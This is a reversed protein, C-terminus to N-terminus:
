LLSSAINIALGIMTINFFFALVCHVLTLKRLSACSVSVDATQGSTGIIFSFYLFDWYSPMEEGPFILGHGNSDTADYFKHAYHLAFMSHIFFWAMPITAGVLIAHYLRNHGTMTKLASLELAIAVFCMVAAVSSLVLTSIAGDDQLRARLRIHDSNAYQALRLVLALYILVAVDWAVLGSTEVRWNAPTFHFAALGILVSILLRPRAKFAHM